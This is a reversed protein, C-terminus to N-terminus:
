ALIEQLWQVVVSKKSPKLAILENDKLSKIPLHGSMIALAKKYTLQLRVDSNASRGKILDLDFNNVAVAFEYGEILFQLKFRSGEKLKPRILAPIAIELWHPQEDLHGKQHPILSGGWRVLSEIPERLKIGQETLSYVARKKSAGNPQDVLGNRTMVKLREALLRPSSGTLKQLETFSRSSVLLERVILLTWRDGVQDIALSLGCLQNHKKM